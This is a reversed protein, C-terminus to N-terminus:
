MICDMDGWAVFVEVPARWQDPQSNHNSDELNAYVQSVCDTSSQHAQKRVSHVLGDSLGVPVPLCAVEPYEEVVKGQDERYYDDRRDQYCTFSVHQLLAALLSLLVTALAQSVDVNEQIQDEFKGLSDDVGDEKVDDCFVANLFPPLSVM